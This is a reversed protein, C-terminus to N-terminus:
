LERVLYGGNRGHRESSELSSVISIINVQLSYEM